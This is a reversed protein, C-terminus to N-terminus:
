VRRTVGAQAPGRAHSSPRAILRHPLAVRSPCTDGRLLRLLLRAAEEGLAAIPPCLSTLQAERDRDDFGVIGYDRGALLGHDRAAAMFGTAVADNPAIIGSGPALGTALLAAGSVRGAEYQGGELTPEPPCSPSWVRLAASGVAAQAGALREEIWSASFPRLFTLPAYGRARLHQAALTGGLNSDIYVQPIALPALDYAASVVPLGAATLPQLIPALHDVGLTIVAEVGQALLQAQVEAPALDRGVGQVQNVFAITLGPEGALVHECAAVMQAPWQSARMAPADYPIVSAVVGVTAVLPGPRPPPPHFATHTADSAPSAAFTGRRDDARLWGESILTSVAREVTTLAVGHATALARRGPIMQGQHWHGSQVQARLAQALREHPRAAIAPVASPM